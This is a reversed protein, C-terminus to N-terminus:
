WVPTIMRCGYLGKFAGKNVVGRIGKLGIKGVAFLLANMDMRPSVTVENFRRWLDSLCVFDRKCGTINLNAILFERIGAYQTEQPDESRKKEIAGHLRRIEEIATKAIANEALVSALAKNNGGDRIITLTEDLTFDASVGHGANDLKEAIGAQMKCAPEKAWRWVTSQDVGCLEAIEKITM